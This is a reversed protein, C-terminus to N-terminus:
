TRSGRPSTGRARHRGAAGRPTAHVGRLRAPGSTTRRGRADTGPLPRLEAIWHPNPCSGSTSCWTPTARRGYKFGFSVVSVQLGEEPPRRRVGGPDPRPARAADHGVHRDVLDADGHLQAMMQREKRIGEVVRDAPALPHRRRTAEYRNVLDDDSAELFVIRYAIQLMSCSKSRRRCSASSCGAARTSWSRWAHRARGPADRARGDEADAGAAPQRRRLLRPGRPQARDRVARRRVPRHHDHVRELARGEPVDSM